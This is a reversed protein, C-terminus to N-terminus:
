QHEAKKRAIDQNNTLTFCIIFYKKLLFLYKRVNLTVIQM